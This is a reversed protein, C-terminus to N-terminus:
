TETTVNSFIHLTLYLVDLRLWFIPGCHSSTNTSPQQSTFKKHGNRTTHYNCSIHIIITTRFPRYTPHTNTVYCITEIIKSYDIAIPKKLFQKCKSSLSCNKFTYYGPQERGGEWFQNKEEAIKSSINSFSVNLKRLYLTMNICPIPMARFFLTTAPM